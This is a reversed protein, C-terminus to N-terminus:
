ETVSVWRPETATPLPALTPSPSVTPDTPGLPVASISTGYTYMPTRTVESACPYTSGSENRGVRGCAAGGGGEADVDAAGTAAGAGVAVVEADMVGTGPVVVVAVVVVGEDFVAVVGVGLEAGAADVACVTAEGVLALATCRTAGSAPTSWVAAL